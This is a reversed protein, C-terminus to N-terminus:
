ILYFDMIKIIKVKKQRDTDLGNRNTLHVSLWTYVDSKVPYKHSDVGNIDSKVITFIRREVVQFYMKFALIPRM